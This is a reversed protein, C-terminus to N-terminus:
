EEKKLRRYTAFDQQAQQPKNQKKYVESRYKYAEYCLPDIKIATNLDDKAMRLEQRSIYNKGRNTYLMAIKHLIKVSDKTVSHKIEYCIQEIKQPSDLNRKARSIFLQSMQQVMKEYTNKVAVDNNKIFINYLRM